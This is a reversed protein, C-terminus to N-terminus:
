MYVRNLNGGILSFSDINSTNGTSTNGTSIATSTNDKGIMTNGTGTAVSTNDTTNKKDPTKQIGLLYEFTYKVFLFSIILILIWNLLLQIFNTINFGSKGPPPLLKDIWPINLKKLCTQVVPIFVDSIMSLTLDRTAYGLAIGAVSGVIANDLIFHKLQDNISAM